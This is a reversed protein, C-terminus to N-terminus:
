PATTVLVDDFAVPQSNVDLATVGNVYAGDNASMVLTGDFFVQIASGRFSLRVRHWKGAVFPIGTASSVQVLGPSDINWATAGYLVMQGTAPYLWLAYGAGTAPNVRGRLGGPFNNLSTLRVQVEVDYNSWQPDGRYLQTHGSGDFTM